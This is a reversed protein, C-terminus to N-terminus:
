VHTKGVDSYAIQGTMIYDRTVKLIADEEDTLEATSVSDVFMRYLTAILEQEDRPPHVGRLLMTVGARRGIKIADNIKRLRAVYAALDLKVETRESDTHSMKGLTSQIQEVRAIVRRREDELDSITLRARRNTPRDLIQVNM